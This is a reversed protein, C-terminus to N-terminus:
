QFRCWEISLTHLLEQERETTVIARDQITESIFYSILRFHRNKEYGVQM